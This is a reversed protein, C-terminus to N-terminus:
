CFARTFSSFICSVKFKRITRDNRREEDSGPPDVLQAQVHLEIYKGAPGLWDMPANLTEVGTGSAPTTITKGMGQNKEDNM